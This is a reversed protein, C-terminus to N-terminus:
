RDNCHYWFGYEEAGLMTAIAVDRGTRIGSDIRLVVRERLGNTLLASLAEM